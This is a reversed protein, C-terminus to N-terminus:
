FVNGLYAIGYVAGIFWIIFFYDYLPGSLFRRTQDQRLISAVRMETLFTRMGGDMTDGGKVDRLDSFQTLLGTVPVDNPDFKLETLRAALAGSEDLAILTQLFSVNLGRHRTIKMFSRSANVGLALIIVYAIMKTITAVLDSTEHGGMRFYDMHESWSQDIMTMLVLLIAAVLGQLTVAMNRYSQLLDEQHQLNLYLEERQLIRMQGGAIRSTM